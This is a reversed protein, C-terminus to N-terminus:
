TCYYNCFLSIAHPPDWNRVSMLSFHVSVLAAEIVNQYKTVFERLLSQNFFQRDINQFKNFESCWFETLNVM